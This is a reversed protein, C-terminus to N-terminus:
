CGVRIGVDLNLPVLLSLWFPQLLVVLLSCLAYFMLHLFSFQFRDTFLKGTWYMSGGLPLSSWLTGCLQQLNLLPLLSSSSLAYMHWLVKSKSSAWKCYSRKDSSVPSKSNAKGWCRSISFLWFPNWGRSSTFQSSNNRPGPSFYPFSTGTGAM